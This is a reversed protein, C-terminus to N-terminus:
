WLTDKNVEILDAEFIRDVFDKDHGLEVLKNVVSDPKLEEPNWLLRNRKEIEAAEDASMDNFIDVTKRIQIGSAENFVSM